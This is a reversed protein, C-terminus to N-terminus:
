RGVGDGTLCLIMRNWPLMTALTHWPLDPPNPSTPTAHFMTLQFVMPPTRPVGTNVFPAGTSPAAMTCGSKRHEQIRLSQKGRQGPLASMPVMTAARDMADWMPALVVVQAGVVSGTTRQTPIQLLPNELNPANM